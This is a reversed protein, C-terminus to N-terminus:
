RAVAKLLSVRNARIGPIVSALAGFLLSLAVVWAVDRSEMIISITSRLGAIEIGQAYAGLDIAGGTSAVLIWGLVLGIFVGLAMIISSELLIQMVVLRRSMGLCRMVGFERQREMIATVLANVLGFGLAAMIVGFWIFMVSDMLDSLAATQPELQRWSRVDLEPFTAGIWSSSADPQSAPRQFSLETISSTGLAQQVNGIGAFAFRKELSEGDADYLGRVTYGTERSRGEADQAVVVVRKGIRTKLESALAAGLVIGRDEPGTLADGSITVTALLSLTERAPEVGVLQVGRTERESMLVVPVRLRAAWSWLTTRDLVERQSETPLFAHALGPDDHYGPAVLLFDGNLNQRAGDRMDVQMGRMLANLFTVGAIALAISALLLANRRGHRLLNRCSIRTLLRIPM